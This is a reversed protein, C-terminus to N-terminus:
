EISHMNVKSNKHIPHMLAFEKQIKSKKM